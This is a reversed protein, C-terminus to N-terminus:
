RRSRSYPNDLTVGRVWVSTHAKIVAYVVGAFRDLDYLCVFSQRRATAWGAVGTEYCSLHDVSPRSTSPVTWGM